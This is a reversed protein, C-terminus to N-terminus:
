HLEAPEYREHDFDYRVGNTIVTGTATLFYSDATTAYTLEFSHFDFYDRVQAQENEIALWGSYTMTAVLHAGASPVEIQASLDGDLVIVDTAGCLQFLLHTETKGDIEGETTM